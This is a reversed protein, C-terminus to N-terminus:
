SSLGLDQRMTEVPDVGSFNILDSLANFDYEYNGFEIDKIASIVEDVNNVCLQPFNRYYVDKASKNYDIFFSFCGSQVAEAVATSGVGVAYTSKMMLRYTLSGDDTDDCLFINSRKNQLITKLLLDSKGDKIRSPKPRVYIKKDKFEDAILFIYEILRKNFLTSDTFGWLFLIDKPRDKILVGSCNKAPMRLSGVAKVITNNSWTKCYYRKYLLTGYAYYIDYDVYKWIGVQNVLYPLGHNTIVSLINFKRLVM